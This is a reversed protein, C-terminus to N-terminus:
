SAFRVKQWVTSGSTLRVARDADQISGRISFRRAVLGHCLRRFAVDSPEIPIM